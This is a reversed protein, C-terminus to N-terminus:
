LDLVWFGLCVRGCGGTSLPQTVFGVAAGGHGHSPPRNTGRAHGQRSSPSLPWRVRICALMHRSTPHGLPLNRRRSLRRNKNSISSKSGLPFLLGPTTKAGSFSRPGKDQRPFTSLGWHGGLTRRCSARHARSERDNPEFYFAFLSLPFSSPVSSRKQSSGSVPRGCM